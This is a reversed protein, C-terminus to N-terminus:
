SWLGIRYFNKCRLVFNYVHGLVSQTFELKLFYANDKNDLDFQGLNYMVLYKLNEDNSYVNVKVVIIRDVLIQLVNFETYQIKFNPNVSQLIKIFRRKKNEYSANQVIKSDTIYHHFLGTNPISNLESLLAQM